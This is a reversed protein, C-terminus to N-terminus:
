KGTMMECEDNMMTMECARDGAFVEFFSIWVRRPLSRTQTRGIGEIAEYTVEGTIRGTDLTGAELLPVNETSGKTNRPQVM